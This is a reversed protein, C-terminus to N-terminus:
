GGNKERRRLDVIAWSRRRELDRLAAKETMSVSKIDGVVSGRRRRRRLVGFSRGGNFRSFVQGVYWRDWENREADNRLYEYKNIGSM